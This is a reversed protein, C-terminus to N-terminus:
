LTTGTTPSSESNSGDNEEEAFWDSVAAVARKENLETAYALMAGEHKFDIHTETTTCYASYKNFIEDRAPQNLYTKTAPAGGLRCAYVVPTGVITIEGGIRVFKM